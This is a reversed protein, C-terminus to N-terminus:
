CTAREFAAGGRLGTPAAGEGRGVGPHPAGQVWVMPGPAPRRCASGWQLLPAGAAILAPLRVVVGYSRRGRRSRGRFSPSIGDGEPLLYRLARSSPGRRASCAAKRCMRSQRIIAAMYVSMSDGIKELSTRLHAHLTQQKAQVSGPPLLHRGPEPPTRLTRHDRSPWPLRAPTLTM